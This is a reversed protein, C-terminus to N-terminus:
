TEGCHPCAIFAIGDPTVYKAGLRSRSCAGLDRAGSRYGQRAERCAKVRFRVM